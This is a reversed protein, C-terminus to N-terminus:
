PATTAQARLFGKGTLGNSGTLSFTKWEWGNSLAPADPPPVVTTELTVATTFAALDIGGGISYDIGDPSTGTAPAGATFSTGTRVAVTLLLQKLADGDEGDESLGFIKGNNSGDGPDGDFAFETGNDVGDGDPDQTIGAQNAPISGNGVYTQIWSSFPTVATPNIIAVVPPTGANGDDDYAYNLTFGTPLGTVNSFTGTIGGDSKLIVHVSGTVTGTGSFALNSGVGLTIAGSTSTIRPVRPASLSDYALTLTGDIVAGGNAALVGQPALTTGTNVTILGSTQGGLGLTGANVTTPGSFNTAASSFIVTGAGNKTLSGTGTTAGTLTMVHPEDAPGAGTVVAPGNLNVPVTSTSDGLAGLVGGELRLQSVLAPNSSGITMGGSGVYLEGGSLRLISQGGLAAQGFQVREAKAVGSGHVHLIAQGRSNNNATAVGLFVGGVADTSTFTGGAVDLISWRDPSDLGVTTTGNVTLSGSDIRCSVSSNANNGLLIDGTVNVIGGNHIYLGASASGAAPEATGLNLNGRSLSLSGANLTGGAVNIFVNGSSINAQHSVAGDITATGAVLEFGASANEFNAGGTTHIEGGNVRLKGTAATTAVSGATFDAGADLSLIGASVTAAGNFAHTGTLTFTGSGLKTFAGGTGTTSPAYSNTSNNQGVTLSVPDGIANTLPFSRDGTLGGLTVATLYDPFTVEGGTTSYTLTSNQLATGDGIEVTGAAIMTPGSFTNVVNLTTKGTGTFNLGGTGSIGYNLIVDDSRKFDLTGSNAIPGYIAGTTSGNGVQLTGAGVNTTGLYFSDGTVVMTGPGSKSIGGNGDIQGGLTLTSGADEVSALLGNDPLALPTTITHSGEIVELKAGVPGDNFTLASAGALTFSQVSDFRLVGVTAPTGLTVTRPQTIPTGEAGGLNAIASVSDPVGNSTWNGATAWTGDSDVNWFSQPRSGVEITLTVFGSSVGFTYTQGAIKTSEAVAMSSVGAGGITGNFAFLNFTGVGSFPTTTGANYIEVTGGNITLGDINNVTILDAQASDIGEWKITSGAALTLGGVAVSGVASEKPIFIGGANVTLASTTLFQGTLTGGNNVTVTGPGSTGISGGTASGSTNNIVLKGGNVTTSPVAIRSNGDARNFEVVGGGIVAHTPNFNGDIKITGASVGDTNFNHTVGGSNNRVNLTTTPGFTLTRGTKVQFNVTNGSGTTRYFVNNISLDQTANAMDIGGTNGVTMTQATGPCQLIVAGGPNLIQIQQIGVNAVDVTNAATVLNNWICVATPSTTNIPADTAPVTGVADLWWSALNTLSTTNNAKFYTVAEATTALSAFVAGIAFQPIARFLFPHSM